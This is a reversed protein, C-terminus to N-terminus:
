IGELVKREGIQVGKGIQGRNERNIENMEIKDESKYMYRM